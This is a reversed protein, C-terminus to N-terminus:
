KLYKRELEEFESKLRFLPALRSGSIRSVILRLDNEAEELEKRRQGAVSSERFKRLQGRLRRQEKEAEALREELASRPNAADELLKQAYQVEFRRLDREMARAYADDPKHFAGEDRREGGEVSVGTLEGTRRGLRELGEWVELTEEILTEDSVLQKGPSEATVTADFVESTPEERLPLGWYQNLSQTLPFEKRLMDFSVVLTDEPYADAFDILLRNHTIWMKLALDPEDWLRRHYHRKGTKYLLGNAARRHLSYISAAFDRYVILIRADPLLSKWNEMFLCVRPDKFGWIEQERNRKEAIERLGQRHTEEVSALRSGDVQWTLGNDELIKDHFKVIERDEFHGHPNSRHKPLMDQGLSLGARHLLQATLSTGSRHFGAVILQQSM